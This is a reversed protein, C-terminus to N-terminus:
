AGPESSYTQRHVGGGLSGLFQCRGPSKRQHDAAELLEGNKDLFYKELAKRVTVKLEDDNWPKLIPKYIQGENYASVVAETDAYVSLVIRVTRPWRRKVQRLFEVGNLGPMRYDSIVVQIGSESEMRALGEEASLACLIEYEEDLFLRKLSRLINRQDDVCLIRVPEDM